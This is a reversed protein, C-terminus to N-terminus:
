GALNQSPQSIKGVTFLRHDHHIKGAHACTCADLRAPKLSMQGTGAWPKDLSAQQM